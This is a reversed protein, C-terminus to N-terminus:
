KGDLMKKLDAEDVDMVKATKALDQGSQQFKRRAFEREFASKAEALGNLAFCGAEGAGAGGLTDPNYPAPIDATEIVEGKVMTVLREVLNKLERVNGPWHYGRLIGLAEASIRKREGNAGANDALFTEVLVPLDSLRDRLPPVELPVINLRFFLDERFRGAAIEGTLDKNTAAVVRIDVDIIRSGGVRRIKQEQLARLLAAQMKLSMDGIEDFFLTGGTALEFKGRNRETAGTFAGKEHGFLVSELMEEPIAACNVNVLPQEARPSLHHVTRAILEKGTGNEGTILIWADTPAAMAVQKKLATVAPSNGSIAHKELTKRRLYRNEEELRRFNLANNITVIVKDISLPKEIFDFAGYKTANVATEITGHGTIMVVPMAPHGKKMEKLTEIGDLGPMWIDLLVMDPSEAELVKLAEYGNPATLVGFGEDSLIGELSQLITPEDDVILITPFM